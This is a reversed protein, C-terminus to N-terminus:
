SSSLLLSSINKELTSLKGKVRRITENAKNLFFPLNTECIMIKGNEGLPIEIHETSLIEVLIGERKISKISSYKFGSNKSIEILKIAHDTNKAVVHLIASQVLLYLAGESFRNISEKLERLEVERHWKGLFIANIKDGIKPIQMVGIRGSCSSTTYYVPISNIKELLPIIDEDVKNAAKAAEYKEMAEKKGM